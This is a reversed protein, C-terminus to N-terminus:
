YFGLMFYWNGGVLINHVEKLDVVFVNEGHCSVHWKRSSKLRNAFLDQRAEVSDENVDVNVVKVPDTQM